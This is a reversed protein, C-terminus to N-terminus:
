DLSSIEEVEEPDSVKSDVAPGCRDSVASQFNSLVEGHYKALWDLAGDLDVGKENM